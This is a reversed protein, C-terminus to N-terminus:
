AWRRARLGYDVTGTLRALALRFQRERLAFLADRLMREPDATRHRRQVVLWNRFNRHLARFPRPGTDHDFVADKRRRLKGHRALKYSLDVDDCYILREDFGGVAEFAWRRVALCGASLWDMDGEASIEPRDWEGQYAEVAVVEPENALTEELRDFCDPAPTGDPNAFLIIEGDGKSAAANAAEPWGARIRTNDHVILKDHRRLGRKVREPSERDAFTIVVCVDVPPSWVASSVEADARRGAYGLPVTIVDFGGRVFAVPWEAGAYATHM